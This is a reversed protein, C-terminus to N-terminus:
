GHCRTLHAVAIGAAVAVNLSDVAPALPIGVRRGAAGLAVAGLGPGEAGLALLRRSEDRVDDAHKERTEARDIPESRCPASGREDENHRPEGM